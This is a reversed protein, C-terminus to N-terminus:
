ILPSFIFATHTTRGIYCLLINFTSQIIYTICQGTINPQRALSFFPVQPELERVSGGSIQLSLTHRALIAHTTVINNFLTSVFEALVM